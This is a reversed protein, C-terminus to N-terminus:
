TAFSAGPTLSVGRAFSEATAGVASCISPMGTGGSIVVGDNSAPLSGHLLVDSLMQRLTTQLSKAVIVTDANSGVSDNAM